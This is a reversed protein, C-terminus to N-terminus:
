KFSQIQYYHRYKIKIKVIETNYVKMETQFLYDVRNLPIMSCAVRRFTHRDPLCEISTALSKPDPLKEAPYQLKKWWKISNM